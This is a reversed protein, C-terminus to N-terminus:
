NCLNYRRYCNPKKKSMLKTEEALKKINYANNSHKKM